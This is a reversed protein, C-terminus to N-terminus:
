ERGRKMALEVCRGIEQVVAHAGLCFVGRREHCPHAEPRERYYDIAMEVEETTLPSRYACTRCKESPVVIARPIPRPTPILRM